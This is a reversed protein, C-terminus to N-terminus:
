KKVWEICVRTNWIYMCVYVYPNNTMISDFFLLAAPALICCFFDTTARAGSGVMAEGSVVLAGSLALVNVQITAKRETISVCSPISHLLAHLGTSSPMHIGQVCCLGNVM